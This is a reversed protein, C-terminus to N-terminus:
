KHVATIAIADTMPPRLSQCHQILMSV